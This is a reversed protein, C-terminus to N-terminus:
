RKRRRCARHTARLNWEVDTGGAERPRVRDLSASGPAPWRVRPNIYGNCIECIWGDRALMRDRQAPSAFEGTIDGPLLDGEAGAPCRCQHLPHQCSPCPTSM